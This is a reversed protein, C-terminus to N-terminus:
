LPKPSDTFQLINVQTKDPNILKLQYTNLNKECGFKLEPSQIIGLVMGSVTPQKYSYIAQKGVLAHSSFVFQKLQLTNLYSNILSKCIFLEDQNSKVPTPQCATLFVFLSLCVIKKM